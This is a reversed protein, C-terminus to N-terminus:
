SHISLSSKHFMSFLLLVFLHLVFSYDNVYMGVVCVYMCAFMCVYMCVYTCVCIRICVYVCLYTYMRVRMCISWNTVYYIWKFLSIFILKISHFIIKMSLSKQLSFSTIKYQLLALNLLILLSHSFLFLLSLLFHYIIRAVACM